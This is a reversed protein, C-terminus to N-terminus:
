HYWLINNWRGNTYYGMDNVTYGPPLGIFASKPPARGDVDQVKAWTYIEDATALALLQLLENRKDPFQAEQVELVAQDNYKNYDGLASYINDQAMRHWDRGRYETPVNQGPDRSLPNFTGRNYRDRVQKQSLHFIKGREVARERSVKSLKGFTQRTRRAM